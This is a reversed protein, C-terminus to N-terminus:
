GADPRCVRYRVGEAIPEIRETFWAPEVTETGTEPTAEDGAWCGFVEVAGADLAREVLTRLLVRSREEQGYAEREADQMADVLPTVEDARSFGQWALDGSNFGCGCGTWAGVYAVHPLTFRARVPADAAVPEVRHYGDLPHPTQPTAPAVTPLPVVSAVWVLLCM